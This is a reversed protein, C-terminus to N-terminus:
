KEGYVLVNKEVSDVFYGVKVWLYTKNHKNYIINGM